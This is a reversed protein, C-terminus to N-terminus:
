WTSQVNTPFNFRRDNQELYYFTTSGDTGNGMMDFFFM